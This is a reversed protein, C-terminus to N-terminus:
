KKASLPFSVTYSEGARVRLTTQQSRPGLEDSWSAKLDFSYMRGAAPLPPTIFTREAGTQTMPKDNISLKANAPVRVTITARTDDAEAQRQETAAFESYSVAPYVSSRARAPPGTYADYRARAYSPASTIVPGYSYGSTYPMSWPSYGAGGWYPSGYGGMYPSGYSYPYGRYWPSGYYSPTYIWPNIPSVFPTAFTSPFFFRRQAHATESGLTAAIACACLIRLSMM